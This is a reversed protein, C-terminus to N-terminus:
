IDIGSRFTKQNRPADHAKEIRDTYLNEKALEKSHEAATMVKANGRNKQSLKEWEPGKVFKPENALKVYRRVQLLTRYETALERETKRATEIAEFRQSVDSIAHGLSAMDYGALTLKRAADRYESMAQRQEYSLQWLSDEWEQENLKSITDPTVGSLLLNTFLRDADQRKLQEVPINIQKEKLSLLEELQAAKSPSIQSDNEKAPEFELPYDGHYALLHIGEALSLQEPSIPLHLQRIKGALADPLPKDALQSFTTDLTKQAIARYKAELRYREWEEPSMLKAPKQPSKGKLFDLIAEAEQHSITDFKATKYAPHEQLALFLERRQRANM